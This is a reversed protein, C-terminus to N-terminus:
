SGIEEQLRTGFLGDDVAVVTVAPVLRIARAMVAEGLDFRGVL